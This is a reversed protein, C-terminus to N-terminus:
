SPSGTATSLMNRMTRMRRHRTHKRRRKLRIGGSEWGISTKLGHHPSASHKRSWTPIHILPSDCAAAGTRSGARDEVCDRISFGTTLSDGFAVYRSTSSPKPLEECARVSPGSGETWLFVDADDNWSERPADDPTSNNARAWFVIKTGDGSIAKQSWGSSTYTDPCGGVVETKGSPRDKRLLLGSSDEYKLFAGSHSLAAHYGNTAERKAASTELDVTFMERLIESDIQAVTEFVVTRGDGSIAPASAYYWDGSVIPPIRSVLKTEGTELDHVYIDDGGNSDVSDFVQDSTFAIYRGNLSMVAATSGTMWCGYSGCSPGEGESGDSAVSARITTGAVVDHVFIDALDNTDNSVLNKASSSFAVYRGNGSIATVAAHDALFDVM